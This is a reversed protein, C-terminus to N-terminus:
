PVHRHKDQQGGGFELGTLAKCEQLSLSTFPSLSSLSMYLQVGGPVM